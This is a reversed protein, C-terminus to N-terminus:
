GKVFILEFHIIARFTFCLVTFSRFSLVLSFRPSRARLIFNKSIVGFVCDIILLVILLVKNFNLFKPETFFVTLPIFLYAVSQPFFIKAFVKVEHHVPIYFACLIKLVLCHSVFLVIKFVPFSLLISLITLLLVSLEGGGM